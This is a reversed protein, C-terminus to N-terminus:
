EDQDEDEIWTFAFDEKESIINLVCAVIGLTDDEHFVWQNVEKGVHEDVFNCPSAFETIVVSM